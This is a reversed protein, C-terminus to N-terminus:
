LGVKYTKEVRGAGISGRSHAPVWFTGVYKGFLPKEESYVAFHGRVWHLRKKPADSDSESDEVCVKTKSKMVRLSLKRYEVTPVSAQRRVARTISRPVRESAAETGKANLLSLILLSNGHILRIASMFSEHQSPHFLTKWDDSLWFSTGGFARLTGDSNVLSMATGVFQKRRFTLAMKKEVFLAFIVTPAVQFLGEEFDTINLARRVDPTISPIDAAAFVLVGYRVDFGLYHGQDDTEPIEFEVWTLPYPLKFPFEETLKKCLGNLFEGDRPADGREDAEKLLPTLIDTGELVGIVRGDLNYREHLHPLIDEFLM